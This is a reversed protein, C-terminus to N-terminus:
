EVAFNELKNPEVHLVCKICMATRLYFVSTEYGGDMYFKTYKPQPDKVCKTAYPRTYTYSLQLM